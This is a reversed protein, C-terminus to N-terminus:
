TYGIKPSTLQSPQKFKEEIKQYYQIVEPTVTPHVKKLAKNFHEMTIKEIQFDERLAIM